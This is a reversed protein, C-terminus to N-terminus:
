DHSNEEELLKYNHFLKKLEKLKPRKRKERSMMAHITDCLEEPLEPRIKEIRVPTGSLHTSLTAMLSDGCFPFKGTLIYYITIGLSYIDSKIDLSSNGIIQEPSLFQPTGNINNKASITCDYQGKCLGFDIIKVENSATLILNSPKIDRHVIDHHDFYELADIIDSSIRAVLELGMPEQLSIEKLTRGEIYEMIMFCLSDHYGFDILNVIHPHKMKSHFYVERMFFHCTYNDQSSAPLNMLKLAIHQNNRLDLAKYVTSSGGSGIPKIVKYRNAFTYNKNMTLKNSFLHGERLSYKIKGILLQPSVPKFLYDDIGGVLARTIDNQNNEESLVYIPLYMYSKHSRIKPTFDLVSEGDVLWDSIIFDIDDAQPSDFFSDYDEFHIITCGNIQLTPTYTDLVKEDDDFWAITTM